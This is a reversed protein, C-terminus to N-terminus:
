DTGIRLSKIQWGPSICLSPAVPFTRTGSFGIDSWVGAPGGSLVQFSYLGDAALSSLDNSSATVTVLNGSCDATTFLMVEGSTGGAQAPAPEAAAVQCQGSVARTADKCLLSCKMSAMMSSREDVAIM